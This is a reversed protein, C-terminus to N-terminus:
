RESRRYWFEQDAMTHFGILLLLCVFFYRSTVSMLWDDANRHWCGTSRLKSYVTVRICKNRAAMVRCLYMSRSAAVEFCHPHVSWSRGTYEAGGCDWVRRTGCVVTFSVSFLQPRLSFMLSVGFHKMKTNRRLTLATSQELTEGFLFSLLHCWSCPSSYFRLWTSQLIYLMSSSQYCVTFGYVEGQKM